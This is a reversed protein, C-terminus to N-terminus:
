YIYGFRTFGGTGSVGVTPLIEGISVGTGLGFYSFDSTDFKGVADAAGGYSITLPGVNTGYEIGGGAYYALNM